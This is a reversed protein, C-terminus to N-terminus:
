KKEYFRVYDFVAFVPLRSEDVADTRGLQSAISTLWIHQEGPEGLKATASTHVIKGEFYYTIKEPTFECGWVHFDASLDPTPVRQHDLSLHEPLWRHTTVAYGRPNISDNECVDLEQVSLQTNTGGSGDHKMMWFSTHWGKTPPTKFRAEYYGFKFPRKSIVGAGTYDKGGAKEKRLALWLFGDRVAVNAPLQTSWHKSDTRFDWRATDLKTGVFEDAWALVYGNNPPTAHVAAILGLAFAFACALRRNM